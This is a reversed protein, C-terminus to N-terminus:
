NNNEYFLERHPKVKLIDIGSLLWELEQKTFNIVEHDSKIPWKFQNEDLRKYWLAHGTKDWYLIKVKNKRKNTFIFLHNEFPNLKMEHQVIASLGDISKRFDVFERYIYLNDFHDISKM